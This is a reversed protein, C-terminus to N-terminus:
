KEKFDKGKVLEVTYTISMESITNIPLGTKPNYIEFKKSTKSFTDCILGYKVGNKMYYMADAHNDFFAKCVETNSDFEYECNGLAICYTM